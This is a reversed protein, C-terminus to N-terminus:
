LLFEFFIKALKYRIGVMCRSNRCGVARARTRAHGLEGSPETPNKGGELGWGM